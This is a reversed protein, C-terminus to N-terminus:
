RHQLTLRESAHLPATQTAMDGPGSSSQPLHRSVWEATCHLKEAVGKQREGGKEGM